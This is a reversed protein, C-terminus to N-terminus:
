EAPAKLTCSITGIKDGRFNFIGISISNPVITAGEIFIVEHYHLDYYHLEEINTGKCGVLILGDPEFAGLTDGEELEVEQENEVIVKKNTEDNFVVFKPEEIIGVFTEAWETGPLTSEMDIGEYVVPESVELSTEETTEELSTPENSIEDTITDTGIDTSITYTTEETTTISDPDAMVEQSGCASLSLVVLTLLLLLSALHKVPINLHKKM